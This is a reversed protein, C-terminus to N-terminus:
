ANMVYAPLRPTRRPMAAAAERKAATRMSPHVATGRKTAAARDTAAAPETRVPKRPIQANKM